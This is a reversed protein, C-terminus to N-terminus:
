LLNQLTAVMEEVDARYLYEEEAWYNDSMNNWARGICPYELPGYFKRIVNPNSLGELKMMELWEEHSRLAYYTNGMFELTDM